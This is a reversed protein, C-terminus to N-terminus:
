RRVPESAGAASSVEARIVSLTDRDLKGTRKRIRGDAGVVYVAPLETEGLADALQFREDLFVPYSFPHREVYRRVTAADEGVSVGVIWLQEADHSKALRELVAHEKKCAECWTAWLDVIAVRGRAAVRLQTPAGELSAVAVDPFPAGGMAEGGPSAPPTCAALLPLAIAFRLLMAGM